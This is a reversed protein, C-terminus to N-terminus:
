VGIERRLWVRSVARISRICWWPILPSSVPVKCLVAELYPLAMPAPPPPHRKVLPHSVQESCPLTVRQPPSASGRVKSSDPSRVRLQPPFTNIPRGRAASVGSTPVPQSPQPRATHSAADAAQVARNVRSRRNCSQRIPRPPDFFSTPRSISWFPCFNYETCGVDLNSYFQITRMIPSMFFLGM